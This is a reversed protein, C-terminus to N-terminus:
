RRDHLRLSSGGRTGAPSGVMTVARSSFTERSRVATRSASSTVGYESPLLGRNTSSSISGPPM